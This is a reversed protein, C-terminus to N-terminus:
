RSRQARAAQRLSSRQRLLQLLCVAAVAVVLLGAALHEPQGVYHWASNAPVVEVAHGPHALADGACYSALWATAVFCSIIRM